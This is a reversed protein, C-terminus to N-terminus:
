RGANARPRRAPGQPVGRTRLPGRFQHVGQRLRPLHRISQGPQGFLHSRPQRRLLQRGMSGGHGLAPQEARHGQRRNKRRPRHGTGSHEDPLIRRWRHRGSAQRAPGGQRGSGGPLRLGHFRSRRQHHVPPRVQVQVVSRGVDPAPRRRHHHDGRGEHSAVTGRHGDPAPHIGRRGERVAQYPRFRPNTGRDHLPVPGQGEM